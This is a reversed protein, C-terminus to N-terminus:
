DGNFVVRNKFPQITAFNRAHSFNGPFVLFKQHPDPVVNFGALDDCIITFDPMEYLMLKERAKPPVTYDQTPM